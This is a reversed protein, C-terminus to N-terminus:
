SSERMFQGHQESIIMFAQGLLQRVTPPSPDGDRRLQRHRIVASRMGAVSVRAIVQAQFVQEQDPRTGEGGGGAEGNLAAARLRAMIADAIATELRVLPRPALHRLNAFPRDHFLWLPVPADRTGHQEAPTPRGIAIVANYIATLPPEADPRDRVAQALTGLWAQYEEALLGEKGDFYRYFTRETLGAASAIDRVTTAEYGREAFLRHAATTLAARRARKGAERRGTPEEM